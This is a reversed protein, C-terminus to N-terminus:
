LIAAGRFVHAVISCRPTTRKKHAFIISAAFYIWLSICSMHAAPLYLWGLSVRHSSATHASNPPSRIIPALIGSVHLASYEYLLTKIIKLSNHM